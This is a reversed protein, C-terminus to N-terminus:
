FEHRGSFFNIIFKLPASELPRKFVERSVSPPYASRLGQLYIRLPEPAADAAEERIDGTMISPRDSSNQVCEKATGMWIKSAKTLKLADFSGFSASWVIM